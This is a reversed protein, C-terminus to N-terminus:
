GALKIELRKAYRSQLQLNTLQSNRVCLIRVEYFSGDRAVDWVVSHTVSDEILSACQVYDDVLRNALTYSM